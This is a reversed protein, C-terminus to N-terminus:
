LTLLPAGLGDARTSITHSLTNLPPPFLQPLQPCIPSPRPHGSTGPWLEWRPHTLPGPKSACALSRAPAPRALNEETEVASRRSRCRM